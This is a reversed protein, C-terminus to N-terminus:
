FLIIEFKDWILNGLYIKFELNMLPFDPFEIDLLRVGCVLFSFNGM